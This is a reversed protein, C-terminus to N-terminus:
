EKLSKSYVIRIKLQDLKTLGDNDTLITQIQYEGELTPRIILEKKEKKFKMFPELKSKM